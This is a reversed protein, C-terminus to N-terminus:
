TNKGLNLWLFDLKLQLAGNKSFSSVCQMLRSMEEAVAEVIRSLVRPVLEKSVTFVEAHVSIINVLAEKLYNRVGTPPLCDKWDFYGAYIGPELSGVIPDAKLEIYTEFQRQDLDRVSEVSVRTIKETGHFSHKEFHEALNIFTHKELYQCNSLIILLRQEPTPCFDEHINSFLDSSAIDSSLHSTDVDGDTKTSLQELCNIFVKMIGVCLECVQDQTREQQFILTTIGENDVVWDAKEALRKVDESTQQLTVMLCRVRLDLILDQMVQLLDNPIELAALAEYSVRVTHIVQTLWQGSLESKMEWGGYQKLEVESLSFPLLAGRILKMLSLMVEQIMKRFDNQRQRANKKSKEVQGSKEGTESFLSGNVYSIWLKWFNPLQSIVVETLNEVFTVQQPGKFRWTNDRTSQFSSGRQSLLSIPSPRIDSDLDLMPSHPIGSGAALLCFGVLILDVPCHM